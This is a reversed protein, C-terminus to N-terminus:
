FLWRCRRRCFSYPYLFSRLTLPILAPLLISLYPSFLPFTLASPFLPFLLHVSSAVLLLFHVIVQTIARSPRNNVVPFNLLQESILSLQYLLTHYHHPSTLPHLSETSASIGQVEWIASVWYGSSKIPFPTTFALILKERFFFNFVWVLWFLNFMTLYTLM